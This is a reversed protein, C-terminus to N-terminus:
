AVLFAIRRHQLGPQGLQHRELAAVVGDGHEFGLGMLILGAASMLLRIGPAAFAACGVTPHTYGMVFPTADALLTPKLGGTDWQRGAHHASVSRRGGRGITIASHTPIVSACRTGRACGAKMSDSRCSLSDLRESM